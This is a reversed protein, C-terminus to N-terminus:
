VITMDSFHEKNEVFIKMDFLEEPLMDHSIVFITMNYKKSFDKLLDVIRYISEVDLSSFVEDLFLLNVQHHKMKILELMCLLVILNMKKQEGASLSDPSIQMGLHTIIPDFELDFEFAFKFELIKAVKLIKKNLIPIIQSMLLKKMGNDGLIVEMEQSMKLKEDIEVKEASMDKIKQEITEIVKKIREVGTTDDEVPMELTQKERKLGPLQAQITTYESKKKNQEAEIRRFETTLDTLRASIDPMKDQEAQRKAELKSKIELHVSDTLDSLCHPCKNKEYIALKSNIEQINFKVKSGEEKVKNLDANIKDLDAKLATFETKITVQNEEFARIQTELEAIRATNVKVIDNKLGNLQEISNKLVENNHDITAQLARSKTAYEKTEEKTIVLMENLVDLGFIKDIIKRKDAPSLKVFSKFDNVSLSITNSFVNFPIKTLEDEIFEDVRRKDPLNHDTGNIQLRSFNPELGREIEVSDGNGTRFKIYTYANKNIRNPIEKTKRVASKGYISVTLADSISSKGGGNKGQVLVLKPKDDFTFEQLKNGYSCVNKFAFSEIKM